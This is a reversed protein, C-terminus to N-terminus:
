VGSLGMAANAALQTAMFAHYPRRSLRRPHHHRTTLTLYGVAAAGPLLCACIPVLGPIQQAAVLIGLAILTALAAVLRRLPWEALLAILTRPRAIRDGDVDSFDKTVAGVCGMWLSMAVAFAVLTPTPRAGVAVVGAAYTLLGGAVVVSTSGLWGRRLQFPPASYAYGLTLFACVLLAPIPGALAGLVVAGVAAGVAIPLAQAPALEGRSIPRGVGNIRDNAGDAIGNALYICVTAFLWSLLACAYSRISFERQGIGYEAAIASAALFRLVFMLQVTPRAELFCM